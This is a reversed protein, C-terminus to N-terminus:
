CNFPLQDFLATLMVIIIYLFWGRTQDIGEAIFDAPFIDIFTRHGDFPYQVLAYLESGSEFWCEFVESVRLLLDKGLRSPLTIEDVIKRHIDDVSVGSLQKLAEISGVCVIKYGDDNVFLWSPIARYILLTDIKWCFPYSHKMVSQHVLRKSEKLNKIITKDAYKVDQGQFDKIEDTFRCQADIPCVVSGTDKNIVGNALCVRYDDEGVFIIM